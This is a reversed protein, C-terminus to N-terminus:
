GPKRRPLRGGVSRAWADGENTRDASHKPAPIKANTEALRHGENWLATGVGQRKFAPPVDIGQIGKANWKMEAPRPPKGLETYTQGIETGSLDATIRHHSEGMEPAHYQFQVGNLKEHAAM